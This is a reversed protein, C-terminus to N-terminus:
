DGLGGSLCIVKYPCFLCKSTEKDPLEGTEVMEAVSAFKNLLSTKQRQTIHVHFIKIDELASSGAQWKDKPVAEYSLLYDDVPKGDPTEFLLSYAVCQQVHKPNPKNMKHVQYNDNSKTKFEFGYTKGSETHTLLGDMMGSVVFKIGKHEIIKYSEINKEWAPLMGFEGKDVMQINFFPKDLLAPAYLLDRQVAEHVATSNRTWRNNFPSNENIQEMRLAKYFLERKCKSAGSPTFKVLGKPVTFRNSKEMRWLEYKKQRLLIEEIRYKPFYSRANVLNMQTKLDVAVQEGETLSHNGKIKQTLQM